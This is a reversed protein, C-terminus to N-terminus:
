IYSNMMAEIIIQDKGDNPLEVPKGYLTYLEIWFKQDDFVIPYEKPPIFQENCVGLWQHYSLDVFSAHIKLTDRNWINIFSIRILNGKNM